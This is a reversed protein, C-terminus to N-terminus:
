DTASTGHATRRTFMDENCAAVRGITCCIHLLVELLHKQKL